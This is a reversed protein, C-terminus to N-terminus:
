RRRLCDRRSSSDLFAAFHEQPSQGMPSHELTGLVRVPAQRHSCDAYRPWLLGLYTRDLRQNFRRQSLRDFMSLSCVVPRIRSHPDPKKKLRPMVWHTKPFQMLLLSPCYGATLLLMYRKTNALRWNLSESRQRNRFWVNFREELPAWRNNSM